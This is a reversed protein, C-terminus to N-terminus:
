FTSSMLCLKEQLLCLYQNALYVPTGNEISKQMMIIALDNGYIMLSINKIQQNLDDRQKILKSLESNYFIYSKKHLAEREIKNQVSCFLLLLDEIENQFHKKTNHYVKLRTLMTELGDDNENNPTGGQTYSPKIENVLVNRIELTQEETAYTHKGPQQHTISVPIYTTPQPIPIYKEASFDSRYPHQELHASRGNPGPTITTTYPQM